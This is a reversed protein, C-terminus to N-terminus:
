DEVPTLSTVYVFSGGDVKMADPTIECENHEETLKSLLSPDIYFAMSPGSYSMKKTERFYGSAGEGKVRLRDKRLEVLVQNDDNGNESSFVVCKEVAKILGKPLKAPKGSVKLFQGVDPFDDIYLRVSMILGNANKFHLWDGSQCYKSVGRQVVAKLMESKVLIPRELQLKMKYRAIQFRDTAEIYKSTLQVCTNAFLSEDKGACAAVVSVADEFGEPLKHWEGPSTIVSTDLLVENEMVLKVERGKGKLLIGGDQVDAELIDDDMKELIALLKVSPIAGEIKLEDTKMRCCIQDNFTYIRGKKFVYCQSQEVVEKVALGPQLDHLQRLLSERNVKQAM